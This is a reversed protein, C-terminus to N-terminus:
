TYPATLLRCLFIGDIELRIYWEVPVYPFTTSPIYHVICICPKPPDEQANKFVFPRRIGRFPDASDKKRIGQLSAILLQLTDTKQGSRWM